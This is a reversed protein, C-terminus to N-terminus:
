REKLAGIIDSCVRIEEARYSAFLEIVRLLSEYTYAVGGWKDKSTAVPRDESFIFDDGRKIKLFVYHVSGKTKVKPHRNYIIDLFNRNVPTEEEEVHLYSGTEIEYGGVTTNCIVDQDCRSVEWDIKFYITAWVLEKILAIM